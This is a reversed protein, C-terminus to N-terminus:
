TVSFLFFPFELALGVIVEVFVAGGGLEKVTIGLSMSGGTPVDITFTTLGDDYGGPGGGRGVSGAGRKAANSASSRRGDDGVGDGGDGPGFLNVSVDLVASM